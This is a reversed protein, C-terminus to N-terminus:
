VIWCTFVLRQLEWDYITNPLKRREPAIKSFFSSINLSVASFQSNQTFHSPNPANIDFESCILAVPSNETLYQYNTHQSIPFLINRWAVSIARLMCHHKPMKLNWVTLEVSKTTGLKSVYISHM